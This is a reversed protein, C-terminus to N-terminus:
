AGGRVVRAAASPRLWFRGRRAGVVVRLAQGYYKRGRSSAMRMSAYAAEDDGLNLECSALGLRAHANGPDAAVMARFLAAAEAYERGDMLVVALAEAAAYHGPWLALARRFCDKANARDNVAYYCNGLKAAMDAMTPAADCGQRFVGIAEDFRRLAVLSQGFEYFALPFPPKRKVARKFSVLADEIRGSQRLAIGLETDVEPDHAGRAAKELLAVAEGNRGLMILAYGLVKIAERHGANAKLIEGAIREAEAPRKTELAYRAYRLADDAIAAARRSDPVNTVM